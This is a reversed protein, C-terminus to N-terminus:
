SSLASAEPALPRPNSDRMARERQNRLARESVQEPNVVNLLERHLAARVPRRRAAAALDHFEGPDERLNFLQPEHGM